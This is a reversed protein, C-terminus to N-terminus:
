LHSSRRKQVASVQNGSQKKLHLVSNTYNMIVDIWSGLLMTTSCIRFCVKCTTSTTRKTISLVEFIVRILRPQPVIHAEVSPTHYNPNPSLLRKLFISRQFNLRPPTKYLRRVGFYIFIMIQSLKQIEFTPSCLSNPRGSAM